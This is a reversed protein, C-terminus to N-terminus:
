GLSRTIAYICIEMLRQPMLGIVLLGLANVGLVIRMDLPASIPHHDVPDDFYMLKIVRLYYFAGVVAMLVAFVVLWLFGAQLAAQLVTFKAYFGLTPPIGAMSFMIILMLFAHWPSRQNLGKLDDLQEAEFGKRSLLMIMGFGALTMLVYSVIYFMAYVFGNMSASMLGFLMFGVHSITSYALMRKLNTQAIATINGVIISLVAMIMLMQQWDVVLTQLGQVLFRIVFAFAALKPVSSILMTIATPSGEYVDPVWMQFPVAGLKFALGAVIFVLGLILVTHMNPGSMLATHIEAINLSGTMGYIMSMGYLLMGSALAGLVFYKMAAETARANDRDLAVLAYLSLSLLELGVYLTLMNQGSVMIMMGVVSFLVLAYFEGRFMDRLQIYQRSYIFILSTGLYIMLKLVDAMADDVFMDTFAYSVSPTHTSVTLYAAVLLTFQALGYIAIRNEKKLFLDALLIVMAMTLIVIEPLATILDYRINEM